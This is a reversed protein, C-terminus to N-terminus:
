MCLFPNGGEDRMKNRKREGEVIRGMEREKIAERKEREMARKGERVRKWGEAEEKRENEIEKERMVRDTEVRVAERERAKQDSKNKTKRARLRKKKLTDNPFVSTPLPNDPHKLKIHSHLNYRRDSRWTKKCHPCELDEKM